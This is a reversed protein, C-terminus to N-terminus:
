LIFQLLLITYINRCREIKKFGSICYIFLNCKSADGVTINLTYSLYKKKVNINTIIANVSSFYLQNQFIHNLFRRRIPKALM